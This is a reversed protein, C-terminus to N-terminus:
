INSQVVLKDLWGQYKTSCSNYGRSTDWPQGCRPFLESVLPFSGVRKWSNNRKRTQKKYKGRDDLLTTGQVDVAICATSSSATPAVLFFHSPVDFTAQQAHIRCTFVITMYEYQLAITIVGLTSISAHPRVRLLCSPISAWSLFAIPALGTVLHGAQIQPFDIKKQWKNKANRGQAGWDPHRSYLAILNRWWPFRPLKREGSTWSKNDDQFIDNAFSM